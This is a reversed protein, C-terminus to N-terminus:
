FVATTGTEEAVAFLTERLSKDITTSLFSNAPAVVPRQVPGENHAPDSLPM